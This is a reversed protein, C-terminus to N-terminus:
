KMTTSKGFDSKKPLDLQRAHEAPSRRPPITSFGDKTTKSPDPNGSKPPGPLNTKPPEGRM